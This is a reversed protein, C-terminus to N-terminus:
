LNKTMWTPMGLVLGLAKLDHTDRKSKKDLFIFKMKLKNKNCLNINQKIRSLIESKKKERSDLIEDFNIGINTNQKKAIKALVHNLGSNRQKMFDKRSKQNLLLIDIPEKELVKRNLDDNESSFIIVKDQNERITKRSKEFTKEQILISPKM